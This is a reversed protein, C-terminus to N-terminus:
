QVVFQTFYMREVVAPAAIGNVRSLLEDRLRVKGDTGELESWTYDSVATIISDRMPAAKAAVLPAHQGKSEVQVEIRLVRGGGSGRLNVTFTGINTIVPDTPSASAAAAATSATNVGGEAPPAAAPAASAGEAPAEAAAEEASPEAPADDGGALMAGGVGAGAGLLLAIAPLAFKKAASPPASEELTADAM